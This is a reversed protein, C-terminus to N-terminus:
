ASELRLNDNVGEGKHPLSPHPNDNCPLSARLAQTASASSAGEGKHPPNSDRPPGHGAHDKPGARRHSRGALARLAETGAEAVPAGNARASSREAGGEAAAERREGGCPPLFSIASPVAYAAQEERVRRRPPLEPLVAAIATTVGELNGLVENNWFRLVRYGEGELFRSRSDDYAAADQHQSGDVEVVLKAGHSCFDVIYPGLPVQRRFRAEPLGESLALWLLREAGTADRRLTRARRVAGAPLAHRRM